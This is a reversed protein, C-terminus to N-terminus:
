NIQEDFSVVLDINYILSVRREYRIRVQPQGSIHTLTISRPDVNRINNIRMSDAVEQRLVSQTLSASSRTEVLNRTASVVFNHDVYVPVLKLTLGAVPTVLILLLLISGFTYGRQGASDPVVHTTQM